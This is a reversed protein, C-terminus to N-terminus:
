DSASASRQLQLSNLRLLTQRMLARRPRESHVAPPSQLLLAQRDQAGGPAALLAPLGPRAELLLPAPKRRARLRRRRAGEPGSAPNAQAWLKVASSQCPQARKPKALPRRTRLQEAQPRRPASPQLSKSRRLQPWPQLSKLALLQLCTGRKLACSRRNPSPPFSGAPEPFNRSAGPLRMLLRTLLAELLRILCCRGRLRFKLPNVRRSTTDLAAAGWSAEPVKWCVPPLEPIRCTEPFRTPSRIASKTNDQVLLKDAALSM